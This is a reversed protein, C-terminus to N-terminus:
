QPIEILYRTGNGPESELLINGDLFRVRSKISQLGLSDKNRSDEINFGKGNDSYQIGIRGQISELQLAIKTAEAYKITNNVMEQIIRYLMIEKNEPLRERNGTIECTADINNSDSIQEFLDELADFLGLKTLLGPMMNHSIRRVDASAQELFKSAKDILPKMEPNQSTIHSFQMKTVSLLVGLGDHLEQAIRKREKEEGEVLFRAALLKKEEELQRIKQDAIIRRKRAKLRFLHFLVIAFALVSLGLILYLNGIIKHHHIEELMIADKKEQEIKALADKKDFEYQMEQETIKKINEENILSDSIAAFQKYHELAQKFNGRASDLKALLEYSDSVARLYGSEESITLAKTINIEADNYKKLDMYAAGINNYLTAISTKNESEEFYPLAKNFYKLAEPIKKYKMYLYGINNCTGAADDMDGINESIALSSLYNNLAKDFNGEEAYLNALNSTTLALMSKYSGKQALKLAGTYYKLSEQANDMYYYLNGLNIYLGCLSKRADSKELIRLADLYYKLTEPYKGQDNAISGLDIWIMAINLSDSLEKYIKLAMNKSNIAEPVNGQNQYIFGINGYSSALEQKKGLEEFTKISSIYNKLAGDFDGQEFQMNGINLKLGAANYKDGITEFINMAKQYYEMADKYNGYTHCINGINNYAKAEGKKYESELSIYLNQLAYDMAKASDNYLYQVYLKQLIVIRSTDQKSNKLLTELSDILKQDQAVLDTQM